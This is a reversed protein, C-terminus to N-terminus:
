FIFSLIFEKFIDDELNNNDDHYKLSKLLDEYLKNVNGTRKLHTFYNLKKKDFYLKVKSIVRFVIKFFFNTFSFLQSFFFQLFTFIFIFIFFLHYHPFAFFLLSFYFYFYRITIFM